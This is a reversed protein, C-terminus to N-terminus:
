IPRFLGKTCTHCADYCLSDSQGNNAWHTNAVSILTTRDDKYKVKEARTLQRLIQHLSSQNNWLYLPQTSRSPIRSRSDSVVAWSRFRVFIFPFLNPVQSNPRPMSVLIRVTYNNEPRQPQIAAPQGQM